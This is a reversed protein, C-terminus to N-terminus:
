ATRRRVRAAGLLALTGTGLLALSAPEPTTVVGSNASLFEQNFADDVFNGKTANVDTIIVYPTFDFGLYGGAEAAAVAGLWFTEEAGGNPNGPSMSEWMAAQIGDYQNLTLNAPTFQASLWAVRKYNALMANGGRTNSLDGILPSVFVDFTSGVAITNLIDDCFLTLGVSTGPPTTKLTGSYPGVTTSFASVPGGATFTLEYSQAEAATAALASVALAPVLRRLSM